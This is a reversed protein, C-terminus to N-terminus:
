FKNVYTSGNCWTGKGDTPTIIFTDGSCAGTPASGSSQISFVGVNAVKVTLNGGSAVLIYMSPDAGTQDALFGNMTTSNLTGDMTLGNYNGSVNGIAVATTANIRFEHEGGTPVDYYLNNDTSSAGMIGLHGANTHVNNFSLDSYIGTVLATSASGTSPVCSTSSATGTCQMIAPNASNFPGSPLIYNYATSITTPAIVNVSSAVTAPATGATLTAVGAGSGTLVLAPMTQTATWTNAHTLNIDLTGTGTIPSPSLSLTGGPSTLSVSGGGSPMCSSGTSTLCSLLHTTSDAYIKESGASPNSPAAEEAIVIQHGSGGTLSLGGTGAYTLTNSIISLNSSYDLVHASTTSEPIIGATTTGAGDTVTGTGAGAVNIEYPSATTGSGTVTTNTGNAILGGINNAQITGTGTPALSAGSGVAMTATTNTGSTIANFASSGGGGGGGLPYIDWVGATGGYNGTGGHYFAVYVQGPTATFPASHINGSNTTTFAGDAVIYVIATANLFIDDAQFPPVITNLTCAPFKVLTFGSSLDITNSACAVDGGSLGWKNVFWGQNNYLMAVQTQLPFSLYVNRQSGESAPSPGYPFIQPNDTGTFGTQPTEFFIAHPSNAHGPQFPADAMVFTGGPQSGANNNNDIFTLGFNQFILSQETALQNTSTNDMEFVSTPGPNIGDTSTGLTSSEYTSYAINTATDKYYMALPVGTTNASDITYTKAANLGHVMRVTCATSNDGALCDGMLGTIGSGGGSAPAWVTQGGVTTLVYGNSTSPRIQNPNITQAAIVRVFLLLLLSIGVKRM